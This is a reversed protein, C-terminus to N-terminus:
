WWQSHARQVAVIACYPIARCRTRWGRRRAVVCRRTRHVGAAPTADSGSAAVAATSTRTPPTVRAHGGLVVLAGARRHVLAVHRAPHARRLCHRQLGRLHPPEDPVEELADAERPRIRAAIGGRVRMPSRSSSFRQRQSPLQCILRRRSGRASGDRLVGVVRGHRKHRLRHQAFDRAQATDHSGVRRAPAGRPRSPLPPRQRARAHRRLDTASSSSSLRRCMRYTSLRSASSTACRARSSASTRPPAIVPQATPVDIIHKMREHLQEFQTRRKRRGTRCVLLGAEKACTTGNACGRRQVTTGPLSCISFTHMATRQHEQGHSENFFFICVRRGRRGPGCVYVCVCVDMCRGARM